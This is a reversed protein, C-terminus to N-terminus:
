GGLGGIAAANPLERGQLWGDLWNEMSDALPVFSPDWPEGEEHLNPEFWIM